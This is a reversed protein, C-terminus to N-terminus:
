SNLPAQQYASYLGVQSFRPAHDFVRTKVWWTQNEQARELREIIEKMTAKRKKLEAQAEANGKKSWALLQETDALKVTYLTAKTYKESM